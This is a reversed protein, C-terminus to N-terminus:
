SPIRIAVICLIFPKSNLYINITAALLSIIGSFADALDGEWNGYPKGDKIQPLIKYDNRNTNAVLKVGKKLYIYVNNKLFLQTIHYTGSNLVLLSKENLSSIVENLDDRPDVTKTESVNLTKFEILSSDDENIIKLKMGM